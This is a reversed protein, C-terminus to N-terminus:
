DVIYEDTQVSMTGVLLEASDQTIIITTHPNCNECLWKMLDRTKEDFQKRQEENM